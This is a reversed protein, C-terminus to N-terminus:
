NGNRNLKQEPTLNEINESVFWNTNYKLKVDLSLVEGMFTFFSDFFKSGADTTLLPPPDIQRFDGFCVFVKDRFGDLCNYESEFLEQPQFFIWGM